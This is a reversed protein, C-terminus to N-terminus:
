RFRFPIFFLLGINIVDAQIFFIRHKVFIRLLQSSGQRLCPRHFLIFSTINTDPSLTGQYTAYGLNVVQPVGAYVTVTGSAALLALPHLLPCTRMTLLSCANTSGCVRVVSNYGFSRSRSARIQGHPDYAEIHETKYCSAVSGLRYGNSHIPNM